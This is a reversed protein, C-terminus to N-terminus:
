EYVSFENHDDLNTQILAFKINPYKPHNPGTIEALFPDFPYFTNLNPIDTPIIGHKKDITNM